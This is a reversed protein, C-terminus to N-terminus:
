FWLWSIASLSSESFTFLINYFILSTVCKPAWYSLYQKFRGQDTWTVPYQLIAIAFDHTEPNKKNLKRKPPSRVDMVPIKYSYKEAKNKIDHAGILAYREGDSHDCPVRDGKKKDTCHFSTAILRPSILSGGCSSEVSLSTKNWNCKMMLWINSACGKELRVMWPFANPPSEYGGIIREGAHQRRGVIQDHYKSVGCKCSKLVRPFGM